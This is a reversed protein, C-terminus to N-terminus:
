RFIFPTKGKFKEWHYDSDPNAKWVYINGNIFLFFCNNSLENIDKLRNREQCKECLYDIYLGDSNKVSEYEEKTLGRKQLYENKMKKLEYGCIPCKAM